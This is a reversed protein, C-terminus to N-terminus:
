LINQIQQLIKHDLTRVLKDWVLPNEEISTPTMQVFFQDKPCVDKLVLLAATSDVGGSWFFQIVENRKSLEHAREYMLDELKDTKKYEFPLMRDHSYTDFLFKYEDNRDVLCPSFFKKCLRRYRKLKREWEEDVLSNLGIYAPTYWALKM